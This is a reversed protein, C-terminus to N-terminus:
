ATNSVLKVEQAIMVNTFESLGGSVPKLEIKFKKTIAKGGIDQYKALLHIPIFQPLDNANVQMQEFWVYQYVTYLELFYQPLALFFSTNSASENLIRTVRKINDLLEILQFPGIHWAAPYEVRVLGAVPMAQHIVRIIRDAPFINSRQNILQIIQATNIELKLEVNKASGLGINYIDVGFENPLQLESKYMFGKSVNSFEVTKRTAYKTGTYTYFSSQEVVLEPQYSLSRDEKRNRDDIRKLVIAIIITATLTLLSILPNLIGGIYDGFPGWKEPETSIENLHFRAIYIWLPTFLLAIGGFCIWFIQWKTLKM